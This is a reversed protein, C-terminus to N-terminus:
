LGFEYYATRDAFVEVTVQRSKGSEPNELRLRHRGVPLRLSGPVTGLEVGGESVRAWSGQIHLNVRGYTVASALAREVSRRDGDALDLSARAPRYGDKEIRLARGHGPAVELPGLPTVGLREGDLTVTAGEPRSRVILTAREPALTVPLRLREGPALEVAEDRWPRHGDLRLEVAHAGAELELTVPAPSAALAGDVWVQAGPPESEITLAARAPAADAPAIAPAPAAPRDSSSPLIVLAAAAVAALAGAGIWAGRRRPRRAPPEPERLARPSAPVTEDLELLTSGDADVGRRVLTPPAASAEAATRRETVGGALDFIQARIHEDIGRAPQSPSGSAGAALAGEVVEAVDLASAVLNSDYSAATLARVMDAAQQTRAAPDRELARALIDDVAAPLEPRAASARPIPMARLNGAIEEAGDGPFLKDGTFLEHMLAAASFLDSRADVPEGASQEPSMYRWKGMIGREGAGDRGRLALAIGFDAIKVEGARSLLVNSPSVDRHVVRRRHAFDLGRAIEVAIHFAAPLPLPEGRARWCALLAALDLGDVLEMAIFLSGGLRGFDFIQVINAHSLAVALKAEAVFRAVFAPDRALEPLIRKIALTKEFGHAGYAKARFVEAMGGVAIRDLLDYRELSDASAAM